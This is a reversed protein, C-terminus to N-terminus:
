QGPTPTTTRNVGFRDIPLVYAETPTATANSNLGFRDIPLVYAETPTATANSNLGLRDIPLVYPAEETVAIVDTPATESPVTEPQDGGAIREPNVANVRMYAILDYLNQDTLAPNGGYEPMTVGTTNLPDFATRGVVIFDHLAADTLGDIFPSDLLDKGLGPVGRANMGHCASCTGMILTEGASVSAPDYVITQVEAPVATPLVAVETATLVATPRAQAALRPQGALMLALVVGLFVLLIMAPVLPFQETSRTPTNNGM